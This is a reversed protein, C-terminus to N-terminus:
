ASLEHVLLTLPGNSSLDRARPLLWEQMMPVAPSVLIAQFVSVTLVSIASLGSLLQDQIILM